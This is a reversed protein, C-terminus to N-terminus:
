RVQTLRWKYENQKADRDSKNLVACNAHVLPCLTEVITQIKGNIWPIWKCIFVGPGMAMLSAGKVVKWKYKPPSHAEGPLEAVQKPAQCPILWFTASFQFSQHHRSHNNLPYFLLKRNSEANDQRLNRNVKFLCTSRFTISPLVWFLFFLVSLMWRSGISYRMQRMIRM